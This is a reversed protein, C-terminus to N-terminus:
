WIKCIVEGGLNKRKAEKSTMVGKSTSVLVIGVGKSEYKKLDKASSYIRQGPKSIMKIKSILPLNNEDYKLKVRLFPKPTRMTKKTKRRVKRVEEILGEKELVKLLSYKFNSFPILVEPKKVMQANKIQCFMDSIPDGM